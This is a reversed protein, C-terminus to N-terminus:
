RLIIKKQKRMDHFRKVTADALAYEKRVTLNCKARTLAVYLLNFEEGSIVRPDGRMAQATTIEGKVDIFDDALEVNDWEAGKARHGTSYTRDATEPDTVVAERISRYMDFIQGQYKQVIKIRSNLQSDNTEAYEQMDTFSSFNQYYAKRVREPKDDYLYYIDFLEEFGYNQFGGLFFLRMKKQSDTYANLFISANTRGVFASTANKKKRSEGCGVYTKPADVCRLVKDALMAVDDPCRFSRTLYLVDAGARTLAGLADIAGNWGYIQQYTDGIFLSKGPQKLVIDTMCPTIDQAEDVLIFDYPL